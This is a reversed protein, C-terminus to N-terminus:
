QTCGKTQRRKRETNQTRNKTINEHWQTHACLSHCMSMLGCVCMLVLTGEYAGYIFLYKIFSSMLSVSHFCFCLILRCLMHRRLLLHMCEAFPFGAFIPLLLHYCISSRCGFLPATNSQQQKATRRICYHVYKSSDFRIPHTLVLLWILDFIYWSQYYEDVRTRHVCMESHRDREAVSRYVCYFPFDMPFIVSGNKETNVNHTCSLFFSLLSDTRTCLFLQRHVNSM